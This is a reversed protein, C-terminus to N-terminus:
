IFDDHPKNHGILLDKVGGAMIKLGIGAFHPFYERLIYNNPPWASYLSFKMSERERLRELEKSNLHHTHINCTFGDYTRYDDTNDVLGAELMEQRLATKPYPTLFQAYLADPKLQRVLSFQKRVSEKTDDSYGIIVGAIIGIHHRRLLAAAQLNIEPSSPKKMDKLASPLMSEFGVFVIRFNARDMYEVLEPNRTV